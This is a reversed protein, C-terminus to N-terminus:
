FCLLANMRNKLPRSRAAFVGIKKVEGCRCLCEGEGVGSPGAMGWLEECRLLALGMASELDGM